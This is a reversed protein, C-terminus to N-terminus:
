TNYNFSTGLSFQLEEPFDKTNIDVIGGSFSGPKDPTFTKVTNINELLGSPILDLQFTKRDPNTSPLEVGNMQISSYRDGLGRVYVYKGGVVSAGTVKTLASAADGAGSKSIFQSSIADSFAISKQRQRLLGAENNLVVDATVVIEELLETEPQLAVDLTVTEGAGIVVGTIKQTTFSLYSVVVTYTGPEINRITYRGDIDTATGQISGEIVVNVGILTEGTEGDVVTGTIRGQSQALLNITFFLAIVFSLGFRYKYNM